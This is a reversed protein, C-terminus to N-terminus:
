EMRISMGFLIHFIRPAIELAIGNAKTNREVIVYLALIYCERSCHEGLAVSEVMLFMEPDIVRVSQQPLSTLSCKVKAYLSDNAVYTRMDIHDLLQQFRNSYCLMTPPGDSM